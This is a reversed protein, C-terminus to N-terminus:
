KVHQPLTAKAKGTDSRKLTLAVTAVEENIPTMPKDKIKDITAIDEKWINKM